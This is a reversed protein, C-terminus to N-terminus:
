ILFLAVGIGIAGYVFTFALNALTIKYPNQQTNISTMTVTIGYTGAAATAMAAVILVLGIAVPNFVNFLPNLVELLIAITGVPHIGIMALIFYTILILFLVVAPYEEMALFPGQIVGVIDTQNLAGSFLSLSIFLIIFNQMHNTQQKWAPWGTQRYKKWKKILLAWVASFVPIVLTVTLIFNLGFYHNVLLIVALFLVLAFMLKMIEKIVKGIQLESGGSDSEIYPTTRFNKWGFLMDVGLALFSILLLWPLYTLYSVGTGEIALAVIIEMPSWILALAFARITTKNIIANRVVRDMKKLNEMLLQQTLNIASLNLFTMLIYTTLQSRMYLSGLNSVNGEMLGKIQQDYGGAKVVSNIWPLVSLFALMQLNSTLYLPLEAPPLGAMTYMVLGTIIFTGGLIRFLKSAWIFSIGLMPIALIGVMYQLWHIDLFVNIMHLGLVTFYFIYLKERIREKMSHVGREVIINIISLNGFHTLSGCSISHQREGKVYEGRREVAPRYDLFIKVKM